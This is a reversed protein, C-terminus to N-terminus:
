LIILHRPSETFNDFGSQTVQGMDEIRVGFEGEIYVGPEVTMIIGPKAIDNSSPSFRPEEHIEIGVSHGLGHGYMGKFGADYIIDRSIKDIDFCKEGAKIAKISELQAKLVTDYVFRMKDSVEGVAVTRTMDSRYGNVVAGFDMTLFDGKKIKNEGPVGHPTSGNVGALVIFDFSVGESGNKRIFFEMDLAIERETKGAAIRPLIYAFTEDTLKQAAKIKNVEDADKISRMELITKDFGDNMVVEAPTCYKKMDEFSKMTIYTNELSVRKINHKTIISNIQSELGDELIIEADTVAKKAMEFYRFDIIFYAKEKTVVLTGASSKFNLFYLRNPTSTIIGASTNDPLSQMLKEIKTM